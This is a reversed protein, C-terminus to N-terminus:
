ETAGGPQKSIGTERIEPFQTATLIADVLTDLMWAQDEPSGDGLMVAQHVFGYSLRGGEQKAQEVIRPEDRERIQHIRTADITIKGFNFRYLYGAEATSALGEGHKNVIDLVIPGESRMVESSQFQINVTFDREYDRADRIALDLASPTRASTSGAVPYKEGPKRSSRV